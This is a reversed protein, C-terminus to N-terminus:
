LIFVLIRVLICSPPRRSKGRAEGSAVRRTAGQAGATRDKQQDELSVFAM